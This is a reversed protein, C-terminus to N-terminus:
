SAAYRWQRVLALYPHCFQFMSCWAQTRAIMCHCSQCSMSDHHPLKSGLWPLGKLVAPAPFISEVSSWARCNFSPHGNLSTTYSPGTIYGHGTLSQQLSVSQNTRLFPAENSIIGSAPSARERYYPCEPWVLTIALLSCLRHMGERPGNHPRTRYVPNQVCLDQLQELLEMTLDCSFSPGSFGLGEVDSWVRAAQLQSGQVQRAVWATSFQSGRSGAFRDLAVGQVRRQQVKNENRSLSPPLALM